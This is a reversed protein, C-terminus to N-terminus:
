RGARFSACLERPARCAVPCVKVFVVGFDLPALVDSQRNMRVRGLRCSPGHIHKIGVPDKILLIAAPPRRVVEKRAIGAASRPNFEAVQGFRRPLTKKPLAHALRTRDSASWSAFLYAGYGSWSSRSPTRFSSVHHSYLTNGSCPCEGLM